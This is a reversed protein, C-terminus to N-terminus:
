FFCVVPRPIDIARVTADLESLRLHLPALDVEPRQALSKEFGTRWARGESDMRIYETTVDQYRRMLFVRALWAGLLAALIMLVLIKALLFSM